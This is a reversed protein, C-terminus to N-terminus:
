ANRRAGRKPELAYRCKILTKLQEDLVCEDLPLDWADAMAHICRSIEIPSSNWGMWRAVQRFWDSTKPVEGRHELLFVDGDVRYPQDLDPWLDVDHPIGDVFVTVM